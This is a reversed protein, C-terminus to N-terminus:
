FFCPDERTVFNAVAHPFYKAINPRDHSNLSIERQAYVDADCPESVRVRHTDGGFAEGGYCASREYGFPIAFEFTGDPVYIISEALTPDLQVRLFEGYPLEIRWKDGECYEGIFTEDIEEGYAKFRVDGGESILKLSIISIVGKPNKIM